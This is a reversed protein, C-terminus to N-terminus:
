NLSSLGAILSGNTTSGSHPYRSRCRGLGRLVGTNSQTFRVPGCMLAAELVLLLFRLGPKAAENAVDILLEIRRSRM